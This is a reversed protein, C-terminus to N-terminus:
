KVVPRIGAASLIEMLADFSIGLPIKGSFTGVPVEKRFSVKAKFEKILYDLVEYGSLGDFYVFGKKVSVSGKPFGPSSMPLGAKKSTILIVGNGGRSGYIATADGDKLVKVSELNSRDIKDIDGSFPMGDILVLPQTGSNLSNEGRITVTSKGSGDKIITMGNINTNDLLGGTRNQNIDRASVSGISSTSLQDLVAQNLVGKNMVFASDSQLVVTKGILKANFIQGKVGVAILDSISADKLLCDFPNARV